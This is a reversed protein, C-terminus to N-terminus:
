GPPVRETEKVIRTWVRVARDPDEALSEAAREVAGPTLDRGQLVSDRAAARSASDRTEDANIRRLEVMTTVFTSDSIGGALENGRCGAVALFMLAHAGVM